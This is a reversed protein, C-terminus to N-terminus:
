VFPDVVRDPLRARDLRPMTQPDVAIDFDWRITKGYGLSVRDASPVARDFYASASSSDRAIIVLTSLTNGVLLFPIQARHPFHWGSLKVRVFVHPRGNIDRLVEALELKVNKRPDPLRIIDAVQM